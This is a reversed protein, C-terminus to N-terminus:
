ALSTIGKKRLRSATFTEAAPAHPNDSLGREDVPDRRAPRAVPHIQFEDDRRFGPGM